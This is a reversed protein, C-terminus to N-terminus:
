GALYDGSSIIPKGVIYAAYIYVFAHLWTGFNLLVPILCRRYEHPLPDGPACGEYRDLESFMLEPTHLLFLDGHVWEGEAETPVFGPYHAVRYLKGRIRTTLVGAFPEM